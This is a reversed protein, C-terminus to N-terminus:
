VDATDVEPSSHIMAAGGDRHEQANLWQFLSERRVLRRRGLSISPLPKVAPVKGNILNHVHAKSCRLLSAVEPVTLVSSTAGRPPLLAVSNM